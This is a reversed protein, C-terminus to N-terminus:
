EKTKVETKETKKKDEFIEVDFGLMDKFKDNMVKLIPMLKIDKFILKKAKEDVDFEFEQGFFFRQLSSAKEKTDSIIKKVTFDYEIDKGALPNNFDTMVRGGSVSIVKVLNNDLALTMGPEPRIKQAWFFKTPIMRVLNSQRKGFAKEPTLKITYKKGVEKGELAEDFGKVVMGEGICAVLARADSVKSNLKKAEALVNTDFIEGTLLNRGLFEIEVFDKKKTTETM